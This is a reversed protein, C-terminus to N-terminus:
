LPIAQKPCFLAKTARVNLNCHLYNLSRRYIGQLRSNRSSPLVFSTRAPNNVLCLKQKTPYSPNSLFIKMSVNPHGSRQQLVSASIQARMSTHICRHVQSAFRSRSPYLSIASRYNIFVGVDGGGM